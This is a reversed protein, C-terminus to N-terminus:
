PRVPEPPEGRLGLEKMKIQLGRRSLGLRLSARTINGGSAELAARIVKREAERAAERVPRAAPPGAGPPSVGFDGPALPSADSLLLAREVSSELERVNGPWPQQMLASLADPSVDPRPRGLRGSQKDLFFEVLQPIDEPHERLPPVRIEVVRLRFYLDARFAGAAVAKELDRNTATVLRVDVPRPQTGGVRDVRGDQLVRLLKAQVAPPLEGIEDLFLTGADALEFRGPKARDAGSFAGREYGFLEAEVLSEPIAASNIRVLPGKSRASLRHLAEAVLEKGTGTEGCILVTSPSPAVREVLRRLGEMAESGGVIGSPFAPAPPGQFERRWQRAQALTRAIMELVRRKEFPKTMFDHAGRKMAEVATEVTGHATLIIVPIEPFERRVRALLEMGDMGPMRLDTLILDPDEERVKGLAETGSAAPSTLYGAQELMACLVRRVNAEDDVILVHAKESM